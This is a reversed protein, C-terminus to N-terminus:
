FQALFEKFKYKKKFKETNIFETFTLRQSDTLICPCEKCKTIDKFINEDLLRYEKYPIKRTDFFKKAGECRECDEVTYVVLYNKPIIM